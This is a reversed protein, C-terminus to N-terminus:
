LSDEEMIKPKTAPDEEDMSLDEMISTDEELDKGEDEVHSGGPRSRTTGLVWTIGIM